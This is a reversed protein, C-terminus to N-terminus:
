APFFNHLQCIIYMLYIRYYASNLVVNVLASLSSVHFSIAFLILALKIHTTEVGPLHNLSALDYPVQYFAKIIQLYSYFYIINVKINQM